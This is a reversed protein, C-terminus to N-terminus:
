TSSVYCHNITVAIFGKVAIFGTILITINYILYQKNTNQHKKLSYSLSNKLVSINRCPRQPNKLKRGFSINLNQKGPLIYINFILEEM